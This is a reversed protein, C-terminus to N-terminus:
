LEGTLFQVLKMEKPLDIDNIGSCIGTAKTDMYWQTWESFTSYEQYWKRVWGLHDASAPVISGDPMEYYVYRASAVCFVM